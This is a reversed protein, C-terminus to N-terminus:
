DKKKVHVILKGIPKDTLTCLTDFEQLSVLQKTRLKQVTSESFLKEKRLRYSSYGKEKLLQLPDVKWEFPM